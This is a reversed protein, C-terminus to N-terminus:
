PHRYNVRQSFSIRGVLADKLFAEISAKQEENSFLSVGGQKSAYLLYGKSSSKLISLDSGVSM